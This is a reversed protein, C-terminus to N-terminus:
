IELSEDFDRAAPTMAVLSLHSGVGRVSELRSRISADPVSRFRPRFSGGAGRAEPQRPLLFRCGFWRGPWPRFGCPEFGFARSKALLGLALHCTPFSSGWPVAAILSRRLNASFTFGKEEDQPLFAWPLLSRCGTAVSESAASKILPALGQLRVSRIEPRRVAPLCSGEFSPRSSALSFSRLASAGVLVAFGVPVALFRCPPGFSPSGWSRCRPAVFGCSLVRLLGGPRHLVTFASCSKVGPLTPGFRLCRLPWGGGLFWRPLQRSCDMDISPRDKFVGLSAGPSLRASFVPFRRRAGAPVLATAAGMHHRAVLRGSM